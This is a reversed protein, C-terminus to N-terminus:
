RCLYTIFNQTFIHTTWFNELAKQMDNITTFHQSKTVANRTVKWNTEIPNLEPSYPPIFEVKIWSDQEDYLQKVVQTKHWGANDLILIYKKSPDLWAFLNRLFHRFTLSNQVDYFDYYFEHNSTLAAFTILKKNSWFFAGRPRQGKPFWIRKYNTTLQFSVEDIAVLEYDM